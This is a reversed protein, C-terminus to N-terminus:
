RPLHIVTWWSPAFVKLILNYNKWFNIESEKTMFEKFLPSLNVLNEKAYIIILLNLAYARFDLSIIKFLESVM